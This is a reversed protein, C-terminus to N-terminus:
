PRSLNVYFTECLTFAVPFVLVLNLENCKFLCQVCTRCCQLLLLHIQTTFQGEWFAGDVPSCMKRFTTKKLFHMYVCSGSWQPQSTYSVWETRKFFYWSLSYILSNIPGGHSTLAKKVQNLQWNNLPLVKTEMTITWGYIRYIPYQGATIITSVLWYCNNIPQNCLRLSWVTSLSLKGKSWWFAFWWSIIAKIANWSHSADM